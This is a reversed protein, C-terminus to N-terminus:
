VWAEHWKEDGKRWSTVLTQGSENTIDRWDIIKGVYFRGVSQYGEALIYGCRLPPSYQDGFNGPFIGQPDEGKVREQLKLGADYKARKPSKLIAYAENIEKFREEADTENCVDPHWQRAMRRFAQKIDERSCSKKVGLVGYLTLPIVDKIGTFYERLVSEPFIVSWDGNLNGFALPEAEGRDKARGIYRVELIKTETKTTVTTEPIAVNFQFYKLTLEQALRAHKPDILWVKNNHDWKRENYPIQEKMEELLHRDYPTKFALGNSTPALSIDGRPLNFMAAQMNYELYEDMPGDQDYPSRITWQHVSQAAWTAYPQQNRITWVPNQFIIGITSATSMGLHFIRTTM